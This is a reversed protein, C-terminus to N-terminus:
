GTLVCCIHGCVQLAYLPKFDPSSFCPLNPIGKLCCSRGESDVFHCRCLYVCLMVCIM